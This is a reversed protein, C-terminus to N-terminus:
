PQPRPSTSVRQLVAANQPRGIYASMEDGSVILEGQWTGGLGRQDTPYTGSTQRFRFVDGSVSGEIAGTSSIEPVFITGTVKSGHQDLKLELNAGKVNSDSRRWTGTVLTQEIWDPKACGSGLTLVGAILVLPIITTM